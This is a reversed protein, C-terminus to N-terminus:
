NHTMSGAAGRTSEVARGLPEAMSNSTERPRTPKAMRKMYLNLRYAEDRGFAGSASLSDLSM